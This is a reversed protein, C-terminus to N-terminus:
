EEKSFVLFSKGFRKNECVLTLKKEEKAKFSILYYKFWGSHVPIYKLIEDDKKLEKIFLPKRGDKLYVLCNKSELGEEKDGFEKENYLAIIFYEKDKNAYKKDLKNLYTAVIVSKTELSSVIEGKQTYLLSQEYLRDEKMFEKYIKDSCGSFFVALLLFFTTFIKKGM